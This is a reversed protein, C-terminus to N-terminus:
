YKWFFFLIVNRIKWFERCCERSFERMLEKQKNTAHLIRLGPILSEDVATVQAEATAIGSEYCASGGPFEELWNKIM